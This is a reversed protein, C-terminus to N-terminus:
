RQGQIVSRLRQLLTPRPGPPPEGLMTAEELPALDYGPWSALLHPFLRKAEDGRALMVEAAAGAYAEVERPFSRGHHFAEHHALEHLLLEFGCRGFPGGWFEDFALSLTLTGDLSWTAAINELYAVKVPVARFERTAARGGGRRVMARLAHPDAGSGPRVAGIAKTAEPADPQDATLDLAIVDNWGLSAEAAVEARRQMAEKAVAAATPVQQQLLKRFGGTMHASHVVTSGLEEADANHDFRGTVPVARVM